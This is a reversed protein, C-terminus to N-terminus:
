WAFIAWKRDLPKYVTGRHPVPQSPKCRSFDLCQVENELPDEHWVFGRATESGIGFGWVQFAIRDGEWTHICKLEAKRLVTTYEAILSSTRPGEPQSSDADRHWCYHRVRDRQSMRVLQELLPRTHEFRKLLSAESPPRAAWSAWAICAGFAGLFVLVLVNFIRTLM